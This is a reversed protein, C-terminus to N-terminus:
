VDYETELRSKELGPAPSGKGWLSRGIYDLCKPREEGKEKERHVCKREKDREGRDREGHCHGQGQEKPGTFEGPQSCVGM